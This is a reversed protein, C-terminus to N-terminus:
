TTHRVPGYRGTGGTWETLLGQMGRVYEWAFSWVGRWSTYPFGPPLEELDLETLASTAATPYSPAWSLDPNNEFRNSAQQDDQSTPSTHASHSHPTGMMETHQNPPSLSPPPLIAPPQKLM